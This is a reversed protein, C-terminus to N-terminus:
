GSVPGGYAWVGVQLWARPRQRGGLLNLRPHQMCGAPAHRAEVHFLPRAETHSEPDVWPLRRGEVAQERVNIYPKSKTMDRTPKRLGMITRM